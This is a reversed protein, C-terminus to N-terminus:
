FFSLSLGTNLTWIRSTSNFGFLNDVNDSENHNFRLFWQGPLKRDLGPAPVEFTYTVQAQGSHSVSDANKASDDSTTITWNAGLAWNKFFQWNVNAGYSDTYQILAGAVDKDRSRSYDLSADLTDLPRLGVNVGHSYNKFDDETRGTQRNNQKSLDYRYSLNWQDGYWAFGLSETRDVQDPLHSGGNFGSLAAEPSNVAYQHVRGWSYDLSPIWWNSADGLDVFRAILSDLPVAASLNMSETRTTLLTAVDDVNDQSRGLSADLSIDGVGGTMSFTNSEVNANVFAGLSKYLPDAHEHLFGVTLRAPLDEQLMYDQLVDLGLKFSRADDTTATVPLPDGALDLQPDNPNLFRSRAYNFEGRLRGSETSGAIKVGFGHSSEADTVEGVNFSPDSRIKGNMWSVEVRAGGPRDALLEYGARASVIYHDKGLDTLCTLNNYGVISTGNMAAAAVDLRDTLAHQGTVGRNSVYSILLPQDGFTVHGLSVSTTSTQAELLYDNLDQKPAKSGLESFRLAQRRNDVASINVATRLELDGRRHRTTLGAQLDYDLFQPRESPTADREVVERMQANMSLDARPTIESEDFGARTRVRMEHQSLEIFERELTVLYVAIEHLGPALPPATPPYVYDADNEVEIVASVDTQDVFIAIRGETPEVFRDLVVRFGAGHDVYGESGLTVSLEESWASSCTCLLGVALLWGRRGFNELKFRIM